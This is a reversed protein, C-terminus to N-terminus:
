GRPEQLNRAAPRHEVHVPPGTPRCESGGGCSPRGLGRSQQDFSVHRRRLEALPCVFSPPIGNQLTLAEQYFNPSRFPNNSAANTQGVGGTSNYTIGFGARLVTKPTIQYALGIRPGFAWPYNKAFTCNCHGPGDGEFITGGPHSGATPNALTPSLNPLRGYQERPYTSYDYRLGYDLTLKRTIKWNDQAFFGWQTKGTRGTSFSNILGNNM